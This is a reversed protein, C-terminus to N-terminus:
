LVLLVSHESRSVPLVMSTGVRTCSGDFEEIDGVHCLANKCLSCCLRAECSRCFNMAPIMTARSNSTAPISVFGPGAAEVTQM